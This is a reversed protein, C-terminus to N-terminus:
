DSFRACIDIFKAVNDCDNRDVTKVINLMNGDIITTGGNSVGNILLVDGDKNVDIKMKEDEDIFSELREINIEKIQQYENDIKVVKVYIGQDDNMLLCDQNNGIHKIQSLKFISREDITKCQGSGQDNDYNCIENSYLNSINNNVYQYGAIYNFAVITRNNDDIIINTSNRYNGDEWAIDM